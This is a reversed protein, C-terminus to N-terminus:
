YAAEREAEAILTLIAVSLDNWCFGTSLRNM